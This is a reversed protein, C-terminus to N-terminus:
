LAGRLLDGGGYLSGLCLIAGITDADYQAGAGRADGPALLRQGVAGFVPHQWAIVEIGLLLQTVAAVKQLM